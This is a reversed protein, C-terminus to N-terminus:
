KAARLIAPDLCTLEEANRATWVLHVRAPARDAPAKGSTRRHVLDSLLCM